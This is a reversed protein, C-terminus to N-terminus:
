EPLYALVKIVEAQPLYYNSAQLREILPRLAAIHGSEKARLLLGITGVIPCGFQRAVRRGKREDILLSANLELALAIATREGADISSILLAEPIQLPDPQIQFLKSNLASTLRQTEVPRPLRTVEEWVTSTVIVSEFFVAPLGLLDLRALAILPGSDALLLAGSM